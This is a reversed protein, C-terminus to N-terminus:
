FLVTITVPWVPKLPDHSAIQSFSNPAFTMPVTLPIVEGVRLSKVLCIKEFQIAILGVGTEVPVADERNVFTQLHRGLPIFEEVCHWETIRHVVDTRLLNRFIALPCFTSAQDPCFPHPRSLRCLITLCCQQYVRM